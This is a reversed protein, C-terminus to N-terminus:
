GQDIADQLAKQVDPNDKLLEEIEDGSPTARM